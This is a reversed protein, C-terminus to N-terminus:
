ISWEISPSGRWGKRWIFFAYETADTKGDGTFSPRNSCVVVKVPPYKRWLGKGRAQGALFQLPLLLVMYGDPNLMMLSSRVFAESFKYPPNGIVLDFCPEDDALLRFDGTFWFNYAPHRQVPRLEIGTILADPYVCRAAQGWVGSGAGPDLINQPTLHVPLLRLGNLAYNLPTPYFDHEDRKKLPKDTQIIRMM